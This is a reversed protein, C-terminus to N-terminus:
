GENKHVMRDALALPDGSIDTLYVGLDRRTLSLRNANLDDESPLVTPGDRNLKASIQFDAFFLIVLVTTLGVAIALLYPLKKLYHRRKRRKQLGAQYKRWRAPYKTKFRM